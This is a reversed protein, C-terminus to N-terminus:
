RCMEYEVEKVLEKQHVPIDIVIGLEACDMNDTIAFVKVVNCKSHPCKEVDQHNEFYPEDDLAFSIQWDMGAWIPTASDNSVYLYILSNHGVFREVFDRLMVSTYRYQQKKYDKHECEWCIQVGEYPLPKGCSVCTEM